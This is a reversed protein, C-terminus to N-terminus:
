IKTVWSGSACFTAHGDQSFVWAGNTSCSGSPAATPGYYSPSTVSSSFSADGTHKLSWAAGTGASVDISPTNGFLDDSTNSSWIFHNSVGDSLGCVGPLGAGNGTGWCAFTTSHVGPVTLNIGAAQDNGTTTLNLASVGATIVNLAGANVAGNATVAGSFTGNGSAMNIFSMVGGSPTYRQAPVGPGESGDGNIGPMSFVTFPAGDGFATHEVNIISPYEDFPNGDNLPGNSIRMVEGFPGTINMAKPVYIPSTGGGNHYTNTSNANLLVFPSYNEDIGPGTAQLVMLAPRFSGNSPTFQQDMLWFAKGGGVPYHPNEVTDGVTWPVANPELTPNFGTSNNRVIEAGPYLHFASGYGSLGQVGFEGGSLNIGGILDTGTLSGYAYDSTRMTTYTLSDDFSVYQGCVGGQFIAAGAPNPNRRNITLTQTTSGTAPTPASTILVQEPYSQGALCAIEGATFVPTSSGVPQLTVTITTSVSVDAPQGTPGMDSATVGWATTKPLTASTDCNEVVSSLCVPYSTLYSAGSVHTAAGVFNGYLTGTTAIGSDSALVYNAHSYNFSATSGSVAVAPLTVGNLFSAATLGSFTVNTGASITAGIAQSFDVTLVNSSVGIEKISLNHAIDLLFAGDTTWRNGGTFALTPTYSGPSVSAVTGHFYGANEGGQSTIQTHGEDSQSVLGQDGYNYLYMGADDGVAHKNSNSGKSFTQSIGRAAVLLNDSEMGVQRWLGSNGLSLGPGYVQFNNSFLEQFQTVDSEPEAAVANFASPGAIVSTFTGVAPATGGITVGNLTGSTAHVGVVTAAASGPGAATVDGTLSTIQGHCISAICTMMFLLIKIYKMVEGKRQNLKM